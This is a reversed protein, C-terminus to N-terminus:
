PKEKRTGTEDTNWANWCATLLQDDHGPQTPILPANNIADRLRAMQQREARLQRRCAAVQRRYQIHVISRRAAKWAIWGGAAVALGPGYTTAQQDVWVWADIVASLQEPTM